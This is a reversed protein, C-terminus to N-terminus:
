HTAYVPPRKLIKIINNSYFRLSRVRVGLENHNTLCIPIGGNFGVVEYERIQIGNIVLMDGVKLKNFCDISM